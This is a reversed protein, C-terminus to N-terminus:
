TREAGSLRPLGVQSGVWFFCIISNNKTGRTDVIFTNKRNAGERKTRGDSSTNGGRVLNGNVAELVEEKGCVHMACWVDLRYRSV